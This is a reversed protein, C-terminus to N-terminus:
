KLEAKAGATELEKIVNQAEEKSVGTKVPQPATDVLTKAEKLGLSTLARVAKIVQIKNAGFEKLIVDFSTKEEAAEAQDAAGAAAGAGAAMVPAMATVGFKEEFAKVFDNLWVVSSSSILELLVQNKEDDNLGKMTAVLEEVKPM